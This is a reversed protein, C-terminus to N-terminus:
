GGGLWNLWFLTSALLKGRKCYHNCILLSHEIREYLRYLRLRFHLDNGGGRGLSYKRLRHSSIMSTSAIQGDYLEIENSLRKGGM